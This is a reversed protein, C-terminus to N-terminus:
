IFLALCHSPHVELPLVLTNIVCCVFYSAIINVLLYIIVKDLLYSFEASVCCPGSISIYVQLQYSSTLMIYMVQKLKKIFVDITQSRLVYFSELLSRQIM